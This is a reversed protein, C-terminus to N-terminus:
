PQYRARKDEEGAFLHSSSSSRLRGSKRREEYNVMAEDEGYTSAPRPSKLDTDFEAMSGAEDAM